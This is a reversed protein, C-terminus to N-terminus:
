IFQVTWSNHSLFAGSYETDPIKIKVKKNKM